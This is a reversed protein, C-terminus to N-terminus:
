SASAHDDPMAWVHNACPVAYGFRTGDACRFIQIPLVAGSKELGIRSRGIPALGATVASAWVRTRFAPNNIQQRYDAVLRQADTM